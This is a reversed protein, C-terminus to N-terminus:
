DIKNNVNRAAAKASKNECKCAGSKIAAQAATYKPPNYINLM